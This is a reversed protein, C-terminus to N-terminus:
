NVQHWRGNDTKYELGKKQTIRHDIVDNADIYDPISIMKLERSYYLRPNKKGTRADKLQFMLPRRAHLISSIKKFHLRYHMKYDKDKFTGRRLKKQPPLVLQGLKWSKGNEEIGKGNRIMKEEKLYRAPPITKSSKWQNQLLKISNQSNLADEPTMKIKRNVRNNINKAAMKVVQNWKKGKPWNGTQASAMILNKITRVARESMRAKSMGTAITMITDTKKMLDKMHSNDFEKGGDVELHQPGIFDKLKESAEKIIDEMAAAVEKGTKTRLGRAFIMRTYTDVVILALLGSRQGTLASSIKKAFDALDAEWLKGFYTSLITRKPFKERLQRQAQFLISKELNEKTTKEKTKLTKALNRASALSGPQWLKKWKEQVDINAVNKNAEM